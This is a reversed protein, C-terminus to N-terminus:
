DVPMAVQPKPTSVQLSALMGSLTRNRIKDVILNPENKINQTLGYIILRM